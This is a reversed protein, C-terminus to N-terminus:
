GAVLCGLVALPIGAVVGLLEVEVGDTGVQGAELVDV